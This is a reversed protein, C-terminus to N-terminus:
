VPQACMELMGPGAAQVQQTELRLVQGLEQNGRCTGVRCRPQVIPATRADHTASRVAATFPALRVRHRSVAAHRTRHLYTHLAFSARTARPAVTCSYVACNHISKAFLESHINILQNCVYRVCIVSCVHLRSHEESSYLRAYASSKCLPPFRSFSAIQM